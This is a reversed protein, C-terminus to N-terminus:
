LLDMEVSAITILILACTLIQVIPVFMHIQNFRHAVLLFVSTNLSQRVMPVHWAIMVLPRLLLEIIYKWEGTVMRASVSALSSIIRQRIRVLSAIANIWHFLWYSNAVYLPVNHISAVTASAKRLPVHQIICMPKTVAANVQLSVATLM